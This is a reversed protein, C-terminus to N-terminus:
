DELGHARRKHSLIQDVNDRFSAASMFPGEARSQLLVKLADTDAQEIKQRQRIMEIGHQAVASLSSFEGQKVLARAFEAQTDNLSISTKVTM